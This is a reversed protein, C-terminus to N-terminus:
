ENRRAFSPREPAEGPVPIQTKARKRFETQNCGEVPCFYILTYEEETQATFRTPRGQKGRLRMSVKHDPCLPIEPEFRNRRLVIDLVKQVQDGKRRRSSPM